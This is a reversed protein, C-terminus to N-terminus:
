EDGLSSRFRSWPKVSFIVSVTAFALLALWVLMLTSMQMHEVALSMGYTSLASGFYNVANNIGTVTAGLTFIACRMPILSILCHSYGLQLIYLLGYMATFLVAEATAGFLKGESGTLFYIVIVTLMSVAMFFLATKMENKRFKAYVWNCLFVGFAGIAPIIMTLYAASSDSLGYSSQLISPIWEGAGNLFLGHVVLSPLAIAIGSVTFIRLIGMREKPLEAEANKAAEPEKEGRQFVIDRRLSMWFAIWLLLMLLIVGSGMVFVGRWGGLSLSIGSFLYGSIKGAPTCLSIITIAMFRVKSNLGNSIIFFVPSWLMSQGFGNLAWWVMLLWSPSYILFMAANSLSVFTLGLVVLMFPSRRDAIIGNVVQGAAYVVFYVSSIIGAMNEDIVGLTKMGDIATSYNVRAIYACTYVLWCILFLWKSASLSSEKKTESDLDAGTVQEM